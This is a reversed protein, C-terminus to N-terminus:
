RGVAAFQDWTKPIDKEPNLGAERMQATNIWAVYSSLEFPIGYYKGQWFGGCKKMVGPKWLDVVEDVSKKDFASPMIEEVVGMSMFWPSLKGQMAFTDLESSAALTTRVKTVMDPDRFFLVKVEVNPNAAMFSQASSLNIEDYPPQTWHFHVIRIKSASYLFGASLLLITCVVLSLARRM